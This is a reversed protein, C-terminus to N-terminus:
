VRADSFTQDKFFDNHGAVWTSGNVSNLRALHAPDNVETNGHAHQSSAAGALALFAITQFQSRM